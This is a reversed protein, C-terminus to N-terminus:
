CITENTAEVIQVARNFLENSVVFSGGGWVCVCLGEVTYDDYIGGGVVCM